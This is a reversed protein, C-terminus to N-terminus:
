GTHGLSTLAPAVSVRPLANLLRSVAAATAVDSGFPPQTLSQLLCVPSQVLGWQPVLARPTWGHGWATPVQQYRSSIESFKLVPITSIQHDDM